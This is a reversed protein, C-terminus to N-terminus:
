QLSDGESLFDREPMRDAEMYQRLWEPPPTLVPTQGPLMPANGGRMMDGVGAQAEPSLEDPPGQIPAIGGGGRPAPGGADPAAAAMPPIPRMPAIGMSAPRGPNRPPASAMADLAIVDQKTMRSPA